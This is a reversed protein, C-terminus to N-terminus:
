RTAVSGAERPHTRRLLVRHDGVKEHARGVRNHIRRLRVSGEIRRAANARAKHVRTPAVVEGTYGLM